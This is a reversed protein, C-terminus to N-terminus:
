DDLEDRIKAFIALRPDIEKKPCACEGENLDKGCKSCLGKCDPKCLIRSPFEVVIQEALPTYVDIKENEAIIYDDTDDDVLTGAVAVGKTWRLPLTGSVERMCRACHTTYKVDATCSLEIYGGTDTVAGDVKVPEPFEVDRWLEANPVDFDFSFAIKGESGDLISSIDIFKEM